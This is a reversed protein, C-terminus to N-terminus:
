AVRSVVYVGGCRGACCLSGGRCPAEGFAGWLISSALFISPSVIGMIRAFM